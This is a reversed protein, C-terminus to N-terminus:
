RYRPRSAATTVERGTADIARQLITVVMALLVTRNSEMVVM